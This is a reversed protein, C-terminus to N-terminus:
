GSTTLNNPTQHENLRQYLATYFQQMSTKTISQPSRVEVPLLGRAQQWPTERHTLEELHKASLNGYTNLVDKFLGEEDESFVPVEGIESLPIAEGDYDQFRQQLSPLAPGHTWAQFDEEFLPTHLLALSWAQAYYVLKQLKLPSLTDGAERDITVLFWNAIDHATYKNM